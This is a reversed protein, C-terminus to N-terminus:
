FVLNLQVKTSVYVYINIQMQFYASLELLLAGQLVTVKQVSILEKSLHM